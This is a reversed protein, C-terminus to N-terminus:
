LINVEELRFIKMRKPSGRRQSLKKVRVKYPQTHEHNGM